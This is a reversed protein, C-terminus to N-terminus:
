IRRKTKNKIYEECLFNVNIGHEALIYKYNWWDTDMANVIPPHEKHKVALAVFKRDSRDFGELRKDDPFDVYEDSANKSLFVNDEDKIRSMAYSCAWKYFQEAITPEGSLNIKKSYERLIEWDGDLVLASSDDDMFNKILRLCELTCEAEEASLSSPRKGAQLPVNTDIIYKM